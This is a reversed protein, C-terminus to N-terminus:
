RTWKLNQPTINVLAQIAEIGLYQGELIKM